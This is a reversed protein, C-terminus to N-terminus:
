FLPGLFKTLPKIRLRFMPGYIRGVQPGKPVKIPRNPPAWIAGFHGFFRMSVQKRTTKSWKEYFYPGLLKTLPKNKLKSIPGYTRGVQPGQPVKKPANQPAWIAEFNFFFFLM